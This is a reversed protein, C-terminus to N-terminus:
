DPPAGALFELKPVSEEDSSSSQEDSAWSARTFETASSSALNLADRVKALSRALGGAGAKKSVVVLSLLGM